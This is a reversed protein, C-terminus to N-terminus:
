PEVIEASLLRIREVDGAELYRADSMLRWVREGQRVVRRVHPPAVYGGSAPGADRILGALESFIGGTDGVTSFDATLGTIMSNDKGYFVSRHDRKYIVLPKGACFAGAAEFLGGEDPVRGNMNFVLCDCRELVQFMELAFRARVAGPIAWEGVGRDGAVVPFCSDIGDRSPLYVQFGGKELAEAIEGAARREEPYRCPGSVHVLTKEIEAM